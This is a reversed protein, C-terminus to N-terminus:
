MTEGKYDSIDWSTLHSRVQDQHNGKREDENGDGM